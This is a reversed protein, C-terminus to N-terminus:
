VSLNELEFMVAEKKGPVTTTNAGLSTLPLGASPADQHQHNHCLHMAPPPQGGLTSPKRSRESHYMQAHKKKEIDEKGVGGIHWAPSLFVHETVEGEAFASMRYASLLSGNGRLEKSPM